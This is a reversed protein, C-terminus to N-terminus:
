HISPGKSRDFYSTKEPNWAWQCENTGVGCELCDFDAGYPCDRCARHRHLLTKKNLQQLRDDCAVGHLIPSNNDLEIRGVLYCSHFLRPDSAFLGYRRSRLGMRFTWAKLRKRKIDATLRIGAYRSNCVVFHFRWLPEERVSKEPTLEDVRIVADEVPWTASLLGCPEGCEKARAYGGALCCAFQTMQRTSWRFGRLQSLESRYVEYVNNNPFRNKIADRVSKYASYTFIEDAYPVLLSRIFTARDRVRAVPEYVYDLEPDDLVKLWTM